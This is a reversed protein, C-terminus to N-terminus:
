FEARFGAYVNRRPAPDIGDARVRTYYDEDLLNNVGALLTFPTRPVRWEATLDLVMSAPVRFNAAQNDNAYTSAIFTGLLSVKLGAAQSFILGTRAVYDPAFQPTNGVLAPNGSATIEADLFTVNALANLQTRGDGGFARLVDYRVSSELGAYDVTGVNDVVTGIQGIKDDFRMFFVSTDFVFGPQPEGRYGLDTQWARGEKLDQAVTLGSGSPVAETFLAPRYSQSLNAYLQTRAPLEYALGLGLLPITGSDSRDPAAANPTITVKQRFTEFRVGPTISLDGFRFLNEAFVPAYFIDRQATRVVTTDVFPTAGTSDLRPADNSYLHLGTSLVHQGESGWDLRYRADAGYTRFSQTENAFLEAAAPTTGFASTTGTLPVTLRQRASTRTYDVVWLRTTFLGSALDREWTLTLADRDLAFRDFRRTTADRNATYAALSLGGPEGHEERYNELTLFWRSPGKADLALTLNFADLRVDSNATRFGDSERRNYYFYYGLRGSTGDLYSFSNWTNDEGFTNETGGGLPKDTRPRHTVYNLAGGPQPGYHLAAGGHVFEIRDVVQLTPVYYAEPYGFQDAHIPIGDKLVQTYQARHPELGRYGISLLPTTEESLILGPTQILAQRYNSGSISPLTDLDIVSTKKGVNIATGQVAALFPPQVLHDSEAEVTFPPLIVPADSLSADAALASSDTLPAVPATAAFALASASLLAVTAIRRAILTFVLPHRVSSM